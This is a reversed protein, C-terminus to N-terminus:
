YFSRKMDALKLFGGANSRPLGGLGEANSRPLGGVGEANSRPLGGFSENKESNKDTGNREFSKDLNKEFSKDLSKDNKEQKETLNERYSKMNQNFTEIRGKAGQVFASYQIGNLGKIFESNMIIENPNFSDISKQQEKLLRKLASLKMLLDTSLSAMFDKDIALEFAPPPVTPTPPKKQTDDKSKNAFSQNKQPPTHTPKKQVVEEEGSDELLEKKLDRMVNITPKKLVGTLPKGFNGSGIVNVDKLSSNVSIDKMLNDRPNEKIFDTSFNNDKDSNFKETELIHSNTIQENVSQLIEQTKKNNNTQLDDKIISQLHVLLLSIRILDPHKSNNLIKKRINYCDQFKLLCSKYDNSELFIKGLIELVQACPLSIEGILEKRLFLSKNLYDIAKNRKNTQKYVVGINYWCDSIAEHKEGLKGLRIELSKKFCALAKSHYKHQLYFVGILFYCNSIELTNSGFNNEILKLYKVYIAECNKYDGVAYFLSALISLLNTRKKIENNLLFRKQFTINDIMGERFKYANSNSLLNDGLKDSEKLKQFDLKGDDINTNVLPLLLLLNERCQQTKDTKLLSKILLFHDCCYDLFERIDNKKNGSIPTREQSNEFIKKSIATLRRCKIIAQSYQNQSFMIVIEKREKEREEVLKDIRLDDIKLQSSNMNNKEEFSNKKPSKEPIQLQQQKNSRLSNTHPFNKGSCELNHWKWHVKQHAQSCYFVNQCEACCLLTPKNCIVCLFKNNESELTYIPPNLDPFDDFDPLNESSLHDDTAM